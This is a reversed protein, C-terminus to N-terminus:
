NRKLIRIAPMNKKTRENHAEIRSVTGGKYKAMRIIVYQPKIM